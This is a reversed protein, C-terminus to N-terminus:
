KKYYVFLSLLSILLLIHIMNSKSININGFSETVNYPYTILPHGDVYKNEYPYSKYNKLFRNTYDPFPYFPSDSVLVPEARHFKPVSVSSLPKNYLDQYEYNNAFQNGRVWNANNPGGSVVGWLNQQPSYQFYCKGRKYPTNPIDKSSVCSSNNVDQNRPSLPLIDKKWNSFVYHQPAIGWNSNRELDNPQPVNPVRPTRVSTGLENMPKPFVTSLIKDM